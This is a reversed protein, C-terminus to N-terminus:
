RVSSHTIDTSTNIIPYEAAQQLLLGALSREFTLEGVQLSQNNRRALEQAQQLTIPQTGQIQVSEPLTPFQLPNPSPNLYGPAPTPQTPIGTAPSPSLTPTPVAQAVQSNRKNLAQKTTAASSVKHQPLQQHRTSSTPMPHSKPPRSKAQVLSTDTTRFSLVLGQNSQVVKGVPLGAKGTVTVRISKADVPMVTVATIGDTPNSALFTNGKPLRLQTNNIIDASFTRGYSSTFVALSESKPTELFVEIGSRTPNLRVTTLQVTDAWAPQTVLVATTSALWFSNFSQQGKVM